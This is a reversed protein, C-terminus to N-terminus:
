VHAVRLQVPLGRPSSSYQCACPTLPSCHGACKDIASEVATYMSHFVPDRKGLISGNVYEAASLQLCACWM